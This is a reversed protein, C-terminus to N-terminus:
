RVPKKRGFPAHVFVRKYPVPVFGVLIEFKGTVRKFLGISLKFSGVICDTGVGRGGKMLCLMKEIAHVISSLAEHITCVTDLLVCM